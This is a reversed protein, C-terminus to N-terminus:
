MDAFMQQIDGLAIAKAARDQAAQKKSKAPPGQVITPVFVKHDIENGDGDTIQFTHTTGKLHKIQWATKEASTKKKAGRKGAPARKKTLKAGGKGPTKLEFYFKNGPSESVKAAERKARDTASALQKQQATRATNPKVKKDAHLDADWVFALAQARRARDKIEKIQTTLKKYEEDKKSYNSRKEKALTLSTMLHILSRTTRAGIAWRDAQRTAEATVYRRSWDRFGGATYYAIVAPLSTVPVCGIDNCKGFLSINSYTEAHRLFGKQYSVENISNKPFILPSNATGGLTSIMASLKYNIDGIPLLQGRPGVAGTVVPGIPIGMAALYTALSYSNGTIEGEAIHQDKGLSASVFIDGGTDATYRLTAATLAFVANQVSKENFEQGVHAVWGTKGIPVPPHYSQRQQTHADVETPVTHTGRALPMSTTTLLAIHVSNDSTKVLPFKCAGALNPTFHPQQLSSIRKDARNSTFPGAGTSSVSPFYGLAVKRMEDKFVEETPEGTRADVPAHIIYDPPVEEPAKAEKEEPQQPSVAVVDDEQDDDEDSEDSQEDSESDAFMNSDLINDGSSSSRLGKNVGIGVDEALKNREAPTLIRANTGASASAFTAGKMSTGHDHSPCLGPKTKEFKFVPAKDTKESSRYRPRKKRANRARELVDDLELYTQGEKPPALSPPPKGNREKETRAAQAPEGTTEKTEGKLGPPRMPPNIVEFGGASLGHHVTPEAIPSTDEPTPRPTDPKISNFTPKTVNGDYPRERCPIEMVSGLEDSDYGCCSLARATRTLAENAKLELFEKRTIERAGVVPQISLAQGSASALTTGTASGGIVEFGGASLGRHDTPEAILSTDEPTSSPTGPKIPNPPPKTVNGDYTRELCPIELVSGSDDSDYGCCTYAASKDCVSCYYQNCEGRCYPMNMAYNAEGCNFCRKEPYIDCFPIPTKAENTCFYCRGCASNVLGARRATRTMAESAKLVRYEQWTISKFNDFSGANFTMPGVQAKYNEDDEEYSTASYKVREAAELMPNDFGASKMDVMDLVTNGIEKGLPTRSFKVIGRVARKLADFFSAKYRASSKYDKRNVLQSLEHGSVLPTFGHNNLILKDVDTVPMNSASYLASARGESESAINSLSNLLRNSDSVYSLYTRFAEDSDFVVGQTQRFLAWVALRIADNVAAPAPAAMSTNYDRAVEASPLSYGTTTRQIDIPGEYSSDVLMVTHPGDSSVSYNYTEVEVVINNIATPTQFNGYEDQASGVVAVGLLYTVHTSEGGVNTPNPVYISSSVDVFSLGATPGSVTDMEGRVQITRAILAGDLGVSGYTVRAIFQATVSESSYLSAFNVNGRLNVRIPGAYYEPLTGGNPGAWLALNESNLGWNFGLAINATATRSPGPSNVSQGAIFQLDNAGAMVAHHTRNFVTSVAMESQDTLLGSLSARTLRNREPLTNLSVTTMLGEIDNQGAGVRTPTIRAHSTVTATRDFNAALDYSTSQEHGEVPLHGMTAATWQPGDLAYVDPLAGTSQPEGLVQVATDSNIPDAPMVVAVSGPYSLEAIMRYQTKTLPLRSGTTLASAGLTGGSLVFQTAQLAHVSGTIKTEDERGPRSTLRPTLPNM